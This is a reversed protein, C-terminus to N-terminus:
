RPPPPVDVVLRSPGNLAAVSVAPVRQRLGVVWTMVGEFDGAEVVEAVVGGGVPKVRDPGTYTRVVKEGEFRAGSANEFRVELVAQGDVAVDDGSGAETVPRQVYDISYGPVVGDFEFVVRSGGPQDGSATATVDTLHARREVRATSVPPTVLASGATTSPVRSTVAGAATTSTEGGAQVTPDQGSNCAPSLLALVVALVAAAPRRM